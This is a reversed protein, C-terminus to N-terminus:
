HLTRRIVRKIRPIWYQQRLSAILLQPGAHLIRLRENMIIMETLHHTPPL